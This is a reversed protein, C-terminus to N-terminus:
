RLSKITSQKKEVRSLYVGLGAGSIALCVGVLLPSAYSLGYAIPLGGLFAGLTNGINFCAQGASAALMEANKASKILITQLPSGITFAILGTIFTMIYAMIISNQTLYVLLLCTAMCTFSLIVTRTATIADALRGGLLNGLFMGLGVLIMIIPLRNPNIKVEKLMFPAIYSLWAFLGGTGISILLILLWARPTKFYQIQTKIPNEKTTLVSPVWRYLTYFTILGLGAIILYPIKWSYTQGLYTALPVGILNALTLGTFMIAIARTEKGPISITTAVVSGVGFFAGHPLGSLFRLGLAINFSSSFIFLLHFGFFLLMLAMLIRKPPFKNSLIALLPAGIVVGLAYIAILYGAQYEAVEFYKSFEPLLGMMAFETMGIALGGFALALLSKNM